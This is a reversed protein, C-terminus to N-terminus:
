RTVDSGAISTSAKAEDLSVESTAWFKSGTVEVWIAQEDKRFDVLYDMSAELYFSDRPSILRDFFAFAQDPGVETDFV